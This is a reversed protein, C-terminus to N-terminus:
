LAYEALRKDSISATWLLPQSPKSTIIWKYVFVITIMNFRCMKKIAGFSVFGANLFPQRYSPLSLPTKQFFTICMQKFIINMVQFIEAKDSREIPTYELLEVEASVITHQANVRSASM